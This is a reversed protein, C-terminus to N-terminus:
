ATVEGRARSQQKVHARNARFVLCRQCFEEGMHSRFIQAEAEQRTHPLDAVITKDRHRMDIVSLRFVKEGEGLVSLGDDGRRHQGAVGRQVLALHRDRHAGVVLM